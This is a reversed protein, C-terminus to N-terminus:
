RTEFLMLAPNELYQKWLNSFNAMTAGDIVRHDAAWSINFIQVPVVNGKDDFRPLRQIKGIAGIAVEPLLLVPSAYTGGISGINSLTFTGASLDSKSVSAASAAAQLRNLEQAIEFISKDQCNKINPVVLGNPTDMAVGINHSGKFILSNNPEDYSSNLRPYQSLALSTAKVIIPLNSLKIGRQQAIPKLQARFAQLKDVIIEDNYGFHPVQNAATMTKAMIRSYGSLPVIKDAVPTAASARPIYNSTISIQEKPNLPASVAKQPINTIPKIINTEKQSGELYSLIDGKHIRGERGSGSVRQLDIGHKAALFRVAPSTMPKARNTNDVEPKMSPHSHISTSPPIQSSQTQTPTTQTSSNGEPTEVDLLVSGTKAMEGPKAYLKKVIGNYRSTIETNAKDSSIECLLQFESIEEGEKVHWKILECEAIGEGIDTLKVPILAQSLITSHFNRIQFSTALPFQFRGTKNLSRSTSGTNGLSSLLRMTRNMGFQNGFLSQSPVSTKTIPSIQFARSSLIM